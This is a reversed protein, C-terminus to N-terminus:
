SENRLEGLERLCDRLGERWDPLVIQPARTNALVSYAPRPAPAGYEATTTPQLDVEIGALRFIESAFEYWTCEGAATLHYIGPHDLQTESLSVLAEALHGAFTPSGTQDNVVKLQDRERGLKLMTKVFNRGHAGFLWATRVTLHRIPLEKHVAQEGALKCKGYVSQPSPTDKETYPSGKTGDFVYDTSIQIMTAGGCIGAARAVNGAGVANVEWCLDKQKECGDVDTYAAANIIVEPQYAVALDVIDNVDGIDIDKEAETGPLDAGQVENNVALTRLLDHGLQGAAGIVLYKMGHAM